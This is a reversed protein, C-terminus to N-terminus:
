PYQFENKNSLLIKYQEKNYYLTNLWYEKDRFNLACILIQSNSYDIESNKYYIFFCPSFLLDKIKLQPVRYIKIIKLYNKANFFSFVKNNLVGWVNRIKGESEILTLIGKRCIKNENDIFTKSNLTNSILMNMEETKNRNHTYKQFTEKSFADSLINMAPLPLHMFISYNTAAKILKLLNDETIEFHKLIEKNKYYIDSLSIAALSNMNKRDEEVLNKLPDDFINVGLDTLADKKHKSKKKTSKTNLKEDVLNGVEKSDIGYDKMMKYLEVDSLGALPDTKNLKSTEIKSTISLSIFQAYTLFIILITTCAKM